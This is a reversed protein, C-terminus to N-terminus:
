GALTAAPDDITELARPLAALAEDLAQLGEGPALPQSLRRRWHKAGPVGNYLGLIHRIVHRAPRGAAEHVALLPRLAEVVADRSPQAAPEGYFQPDVQALLWPNQYAARGLMVGGLHGAAMEAQATALDALGGNLVIRLQPFAAKLARVRGYDLPPVERNQKPSLGQLWAKRAHVLVTGCGAEAIAEVFHLLREQCDVDDVGLRCKVTIPLSVAAHMAAVGEAVREPEKMLCAGFRGNQVRDSPCGCNLNIEDYGWDAGMRAARALDSPESGGLQLAVPHESADFDLHRAADGHLLAGTTVMETYLRARRSLLRHFRRCESTTWDLM